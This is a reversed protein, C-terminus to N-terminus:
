KQEVSDSMTGKSIGRFYHVTSMVHVMEPSMVQIFTQNLSASIWTQMSGKVDIAIPIHFCQVQSFKLKICRLFTEAVEREFLTEKDVELRDGTGSAGDDVSGDESGLEDDEDLRIWYLWLFLVTGDWPGRLADLAAFKQM